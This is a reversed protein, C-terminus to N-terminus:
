AAPAASDTDLEALAATATEILRVLDARRTFLDLRVDNAGEIHLVVRGEGLPATWTLPTREYLHMGVVVPANASWPATWEGPPPDPTSM